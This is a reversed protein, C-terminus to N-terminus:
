VTTQLIFSQNVTSISVAPTPECVTTLVILPQNVNSISVAPTPKSVTSLVVLPQNVTSISVAQAAPGSPLSLAYHGSLWKAFLSHM